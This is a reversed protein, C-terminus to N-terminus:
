LHLHLIFALSFLVSFLVIWWVRCGGGMEWQLKQLPQLFELCLPNSVVGRPCLSNCLLIKTKFFVCMKLSLSLYGLDGLNMRKGQLGQQMFSQGIQNSGSEMGQEKKEQGVEGMLM